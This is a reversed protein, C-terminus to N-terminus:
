ADRPLRQRHRSYLMGIAFLAAGLALFVLSRLLLSSFLDFFRAMTVAAIVLCGLVLSKWRFEHLGQLILVGGHALLLFNAALWAVGGTELGVLSLAIVMELLSM